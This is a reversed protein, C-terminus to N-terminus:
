HLIDGDDKLYELLSRIGEKKYSSVFFINECGALELWLKVRQPEAGPVDTKTVIGIVERNALPVIGPSYLSFPEDAAAVLGVIDAEFTYMALAAGLSHTQLYEGPTDISLETHAATQTKEYHPEEGKLAQILTTKGCESRGIFIIKRM